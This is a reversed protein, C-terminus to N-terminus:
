GLNSATQRTWADMEPKVSTKVVKLPAVTMEATRKVKGCFGAARLAKSTQKRCFRKASDEDKTKYVLFTVKTGKPTFATVKYSRLKKTTTKKSMKGIFKHTIRYEPDYCSGHVSDLPNIDKPCL